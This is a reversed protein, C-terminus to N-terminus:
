RVFDRTMDDIIAKCDRVEKILSIATSVSNIGNELDGDLQAIKLGQTGKMVGYVEGPSMGGQAKELCLRALEHPTARWFFPAATYLILDTAETKIIDEKAADSAECETSTIFATGAFVGEAGLALAANFGRREVIGGAALVPISVSDAIAPVITFTGMAKDPLAGGEDYGTAIIIDVGLAEAQRADEPTPMMSRYLITFGMEKARKIAKENLLGSIVLCPVKERYAAQLVAESYVNSEPEAEDAIQYNVAFPKDTLQRTKRIEEAMRKGTEEADETVMSQGANAGLTGLGGANSVAAVLRASTIWAMPAQVVPKEIKLIQCVRNM